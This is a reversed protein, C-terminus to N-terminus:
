SYRRPAYEYDTTYVQAEHKDTFGNILLFYMDIHVHNVSNKM